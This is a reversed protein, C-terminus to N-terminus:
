DEGPERTAAETPATPRVRIGPVMEGGAAQVQTVYLTIKKGVWREVVPGYMSAICKANTVNCVFKKEKGVFTLIAKHEKGGGKARLEGRVVSAIECVADKGDPIDWSGVYEKDYM